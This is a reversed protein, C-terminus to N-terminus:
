KWRTKGSARSFEDFWHTLFFKKEKPLITDATGILPRLSTSMQLTVLVFIVVWIALFPSRGAEKAASTRFVLSLGFALAISWFAIGLFGLFPLSESSQVFVWLVPALGMLLLGTLALSSVLIGAVAKLSIEHGNLCSFIYLSPLTILGCLAIGAVIKFPALWFQHGGSVWGLILGFAGMCLAALVLMRKLMAASNSSQVKALLLVPRKLLGDIVGSFTPEIVPVPPPQVVPSEEEPHCNATPDPEETEM